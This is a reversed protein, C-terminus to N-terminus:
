TARAAGVMNQHPTSWLSIKACPGIIHSNCAYFQTFNLLEQTINICRRALAVPYQTNVFQGLMKVRKRLLDEMDNWTSYGHCKVQPGMIWAVSRTYETTTYSRPSYTRAYAYFTFQSRIKKLREDTLGQKTTLNQIQHESGVHQQNNHNM